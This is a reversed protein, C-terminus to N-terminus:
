QTACQDQEGQQTSHGVAAGQMQLKQMRKQERRERRARREEKMKARELETMAPSPMLKKSIPMSPNTSSNRGGNSHPGGGGPYNSTMESNFLFGVHVESPVSTALSTVSEPPARSNSLPDHNNNTHPQVGSRSASTGSRGGRPHGSEDPPAVGAGRGGAGYKDQALVRANYDHVSPTPKPMMQEFEERRSALDINFKRAEQDAIRKLAAIEDERHRLKKKLLVMEEADLKAVELNERAHDLEKRCAGLEKEVTAVEDKLSSIERASAAESESEKVKMEEKQAITREREASEYQEELQEIKEQLRKVVSTHTKEEDNKDDLNSELETIKAKLKSVQQQYQSDKTNTIQELEDRTKRLKSLEDRLDEAERIASTSRAVADELQKVLSQIQNEKTSVLKEVEERKSKEKELKKEFEVKGSEIGRKLAVLEADQSLLADQQGSIEKKLKTIEQKSTHMIEEAKRLQTKVGAVEEEKDESVREVQQKLKKVKLELKTVEEQKDTLQTILQEKQKMANNSNEADHKNETELLVRLEKVQKEYKQESIKMEEEKEAIIKALNKEFIIKETKVAESVSTKASTLRAEITVIKHELQDVESQKQELESQLTQIKQEYSATLKRNEEEALALLKEKNESEKSTTAETNKQLQTQERQEALAETLSAIRKELARKGVMAKDKFEALEEEAKRCKELDQQRSEVVTELRERMRSIMVSNESERRESADQEERLQRRLSELDLIGEREKDLFQNQKSRLLNQVHDLEGRTADLELKQLEFDKKLESLTDELEEVDVQAHFDGNGAAGTTSTAMTECTAMLISSSSQKSSTSKSHKKQMSSVLVRVEEEILYSVACISVSEQKTVFRKRLRSWYGAQKKPATEEILGLIDLITRTAVVPAGGGAPAAATNGSHSMVAGRAGHQSSSNGGSANKVAQLIRNRFVQFLGIQDLDPRIELGSRQQFFRDMSKWYSLFDVTNDGGNGAGASSSSSASNAIKCDRLIEGIQEPQHKLHSTLVQKLKGEDCSRTASDNVALDFVQLIAPLISLLYSNINESLINTSMSTSATTAKSSSLFDHQHLGSTTIDEHVAVDVGASGRRSCNASPEGGGTRTTSFSSSSSSSSRTASSFGSQASEKSSSASATKVNMRSTSSSAGNYLRSSSSPQRSSSASSSSSGGAGSSSSSLMMGRNARLHLHDGFDLSYHEPMNQPTTSSSNTTSPM